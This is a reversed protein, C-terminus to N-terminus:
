FPLDPNEEESQNASPMNTPHNSHYVEPQPAVEKDASIKWGNLSVYYKGLYESGRVNVGITVNQGVKHKDLLACNDQVFDVPIKQSYKEDTEVLILRKRFTGASGVTETEGIVIVKGKIEM